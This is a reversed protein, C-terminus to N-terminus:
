FMKSTRLSGCVILTSLPRKREYAPDVKDVVGDAALFVSQHGHHKERHGSFSPFWRKATTRKESNSPNTPLKM